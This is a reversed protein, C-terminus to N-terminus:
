ACSSSRVSSSILSHEWVEGVWFLEVFSEARRACDGPRRATVVTWRKQTTTCQFFPPADDESWDQFVEINEFKDRVRSFQKDPKETTWNAPDISSHHVERTVRQDDRPNPKADPGFAHYVADRVAIRSFTSCHHFNSGSVVLDM